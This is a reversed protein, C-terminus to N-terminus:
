TNVQVYLLGFASINGEDDFEAQRMMIQQVFPFICFVEM